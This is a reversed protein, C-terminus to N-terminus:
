FNKRFEKLIHKRYGRKLEIINADRFYCPLVASECDCRM